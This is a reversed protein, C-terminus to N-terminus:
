ASQHLKLSAQLAQLCRRHRSLEKLESCLSSSLFPNLRDHALLERALADYARTLKLFYTVCEEEGDCQFSHVPEDTHDEPVLKKLWSRTMALEFARRQFYQKLYDHKVRM